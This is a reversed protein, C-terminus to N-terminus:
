PNITKITQHLLTIWIVSKRTKKKRVKITNTDHKQKQLDRLNSMDVITPHRQGEFSRQWWKKGDNEKWVHPLRYTGIGAVTVPVLWSCPSWKPITVNPGVNGGQTRLLLWRCGRFAASFPGKPNAADITFPSEWHSIWWSPILIKPLHRKKPPRGQVFRFIKSIKPTKQICCVHVYLPKVYTEKWM